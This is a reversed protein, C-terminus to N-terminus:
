VLILDCSSHQLQTNDIPSNLVSFDAPITAAFSQSPEVCYLKKYPRQLAQIRSAVVGGGAPIDVITMQNNIEVLSLLQDIEGLRAQPSILSASNYDHGRADFIEKYHKM